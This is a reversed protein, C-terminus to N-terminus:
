GLRGHAPADGLTEDIIQDTAGVDDLKDARAYRQFFGPALELGAAREVVQMKLPAPIHSM